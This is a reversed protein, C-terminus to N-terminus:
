CSLWALFVRLVRWFFSRIYVDFYVHSARWVDFFCSSCTLFFARYVRCSNYASVFSTLVLIHHFPSFFVGGVGFVVEFFCVLFWSACRLFLKIYVGVYVRIVRWFVHPSLSFIYSPIFFFFGRRHVGFHCILFLFVCLFVHPVNWFLRIYVGFYTLPVGFIILPVDFAIFVCCNSYWIVVLSFFFSVWACFNVFFHAHFCSMCVLFVVHICFFFMLPFPLLFRETCVLFDHNYRRFFIILHEIFVRVCARVCRM